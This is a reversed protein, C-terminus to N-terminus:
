SSSLPSDIQSRKQRTGPAIASPELPSMAQSWTSRSALRQFAVLPVAAAM